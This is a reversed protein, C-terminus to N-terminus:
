SSAEEPLRLDGPEVWVVIRQGVLEVCCFFGGGRRRRELFRLIGKRGDVLEVDSGLHCELRRILGDPGVASPVTM